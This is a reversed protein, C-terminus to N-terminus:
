YQMFRISTKDNISHPKILCYNGHIRDNITYSREEVNHLHYIKIDYSPNLLEYKHEHLKSAFINDCGLTGFSFDLENTNIKLPSNFIWCDQSDSRPEGFHRFIDINGEKDIDHRLLCLVKNDLEKPDILKLTDDFYIDTNSLIVTEQYCYSNIFEIADKFLLKKEKIIEFQKIKSKKLFKNNYIQDNLLYISTILPNNINKTICEDIEKQREKSDSKYYSTILIMINFIFYFYYIFM